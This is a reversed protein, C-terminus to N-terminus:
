ATLVQALGTSRKQHFRYYINTKGNGVLFGCDNETLIELTHESSKRKISSRKHKTYKSYQKHFSNKYQLCWPKERFCTNVICM